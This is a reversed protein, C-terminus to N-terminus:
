QQFEEKLDECFSGEHECRDWEDVINGHCDRCRDSAKESVSKATLSYLMPNPTTNTVRIKWFGKMRARGTWWFDHGQDPTGRGVPKASWVDQQDPGYISLTLGPQHNVDMWINLRRKRDSISYWMSTQPPVTVWAGTPEPANNPDPSGPIAPAPAPAPAPPPVAKRVSAVRAQIGGAPRAAAALLEATFQARKELRRKLAIQEPAIGSARQAKVAIFAALDTPPPDQILAASSVLASQTTVFAVLDNQLLEQAPDLRAPVSRKAQGDTAAPVKAESSGCWGNEDPMCGFVSSSFIFPLALAVLIAAAAIRKPKM